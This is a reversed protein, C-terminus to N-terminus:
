SDTRTDDSGLSKASLFALGTFGPVDNIPHYNPQWKDEPVPNVHHTIIYILNGPFTPMDYAGIVANASTPPIFLARLGNVVNVTQDWTWQKQADAIGNVWLLMQRATSATPNHAIERHTATSICTYTKSQVPVSSDHVTISTTGPSYANVLGTQDVTAIDASSSTYRYPPTGGSAVRKQAPGTPNDRRVWDLSAPIHFNMGTLRMDSTDIVLLSKVVHLTWTESTSGSGYRAKATIRHTTLTLGTLAKTWNGSGDVDAEGMSTAGDFIEVKQGKSATGTLTISTDVTTGGQPIEVGKSDTAKTIAPRVEVFAKVTYSRVPFEVAQREDESQGLAAKFTMTLRSGDKLNKFNAGPIAQEFYGRDIWAQNIKASPANWITAKYPTDNANTGELYLWVYQGTAILPWVGMRITVNTLNGLNLEPGEGNNDAEKILPSNLATIPLSGVNLTLAPSTYPKGDRSINFTVSVAKALNFALVSVPLGIRYGTESVPRAPTTHSGDAPTGAAGAWTVSLLDGPLLGEAPIVATLADKAKIPQLTTGGPEAQLIAPPIKLELAEGVSFKLPNSYSTREPTDPTAARYIEYSATVTGGRNPKIHATVFAANLIFPVEKDANFSTIDISDSTKGTVSGIWTYTVRDGPKTPVNARPATLRSVGGPLEDPDLVGGAEGLVRPPALELLPEGIRLPAHHLSERRRIGGDVEALLVYFLDLTGGDIARLHQGDVPFPIPEKAEVEGLSLTHWPLEPDYTNFDPKTGVWRLEIAMGAEMVEDFPIDIVTFPLEPELSGQEADRALPAALRRAEGVIQVFQGKSLLNPSGSRELRYSFVAQTKALQRAAANPLKLELVSPLSTLPEGRVEIAVAEGDLSTGRILGVPVDGVKFDPALAIIQLTVQADGLKDLDLVNNVAEKVIPPALRSTGTDVRIRVEASWDESRNDVIDHVEFTVALGDTDGAELITDKDIRIALPHNAPDDIHAQSVRESFVFVGGWSLRCHDGVAINPYLAPSDSGPRAKILIDFGAEAIDKDVGDRVIAEPIQMYLESHGPESGNEDKGAPRELKVYVKVPTSTEPTQNFRTVRYSLSYPGTLLRGPPVYLTVRQDVEGTDITDQDVVSGNLLLEVKDGRGMQSWPWMYIKLGKDPALDRVAAINIGWEGSALIPQTRDPIELELLAHPSPSRTLRRELFM